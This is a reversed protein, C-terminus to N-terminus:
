YTSVSHASRLGLRKVTEDVITQYSEKPIKKMKTGWDFLFRRYTDLVFLPRGTISRMREMVSKNMGLNLVTATDPAAGLPSERVSLLLPLKLPATIEPLPGQSPTIKGTKSHYDFFERGTSKELNIVAKFIENRTEATLKTRDVSWERSIQTCIVFGNPVTLDNKIMRALAAGKDGLTDSEYDRVSKLDVIREPKNLLFSLM